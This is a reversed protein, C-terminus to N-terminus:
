FLRRLRVLVLVLSRGNTAQQKHAQTIPPQARRSVVLLRGVVPSSSSSFCLGERDAERRADASRGYCLRHWGPM